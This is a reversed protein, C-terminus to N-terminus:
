FDMYVTDRCKHKEDFFLVLTADEHKYYLNVEGSPFIRVEHLEWWPYCNLMQNKVMTLNKNNFM